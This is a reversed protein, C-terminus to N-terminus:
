GNGQDTRPTLVLGLLKRSGPSLVDIQGSARQLRSRLLEALEQREEPTEYIRMEIQASVMFGLPFADKFDAIFSKAPNTNTLNQLLLETAVDGLYELCVGTKM